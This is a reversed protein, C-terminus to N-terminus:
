LHHYQPWPMDYARTNRTMPVSGGPYVLGTTPVFYSCVGPNFAAEHHLVTCRSRCPSVHRYAASPTSIGVDPVTSPVKPFSRRELFSARWHALRCPEFRPCAVVITSPLDAYAVTHIHFLYSVSSVANRHRSCAVGHRPICRM